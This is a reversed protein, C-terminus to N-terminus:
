ETCRHPAFGQANNTGNHAGKEYDMLWFEVLRGTIEKTCEGRDAFGIRRYLSVARVNNKRVILHIRSIGYEEFGLKLTKRTIQEALGRGTRDARLAIRFEAEQTGSMALITFGIIEQDDEAAFLFADARGHFEDPWGKERLAYDMQAMDDRYPPWRKIDEIDQDTLPRLTIM